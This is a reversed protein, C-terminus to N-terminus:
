NNSAEIKVNLAHVRQQYSGVKSLHNEIITRRNDQDHKASAKNRTGRYYQEYEDRAEKLFKMYNKLVKVLEHRDKLRANIAKRVAPDSANLDNNLNIEDQHVKREERMLEERVSRCFNILSENHPDSALVGSSRIDSSRPSNNLAKGKRNQKISFGSASNKGKAM